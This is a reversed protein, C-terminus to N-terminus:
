YAASWLWPWASGVSRSDLGVRAQSQRVAWLVPTAPAILGAIVMTLRSRLALAVLTPLAAVPLPLLVSGLVASGRATLGTFLDGARIESGRRGDYWARFPSLVAAAAGALAIVTGLINRIM